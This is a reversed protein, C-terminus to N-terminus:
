DENGGDELHKLEDDNVKVTNAVSWGHNRLTEMNPIGKKQGNSIVYVTPGNGQLLAGEPFNALQGVGMTQLQNQNITKVDEFRKKWAKFISLSPIAHLQGGQVIYVTPDGPVKVVTGEPLSSLSPPTSTTTPQPNQCPTPPRIISDDDDDGDGIHRGIGMHEFQDESINKVNRFKKGKAHFIAASNFPRLTGNVVMYITQGGEVKVLSGNKLPSFAGSTSTGCPLTTSASFVVSNSLASTLNASDARLQITGIQNYSIGTFSSVGATNNITTSGSLAGLTSSGSVIPTLSIARGNDATLINGFQDKVSVSFSNLATNIQAAAPPQVTFVLKNAAGPVQTLTGFSTSATLGAIAGASLTINGAAALPAGAAAKIKLPVTSGITLSGAATSTSTINLSFHASDPFSVATSGTLGTGTYVVNAISATDLAYGAPLAWTLTGAPIDGAAQETLALAPLSVSLGGFSDSSISAIMPTSVTAAFTHSQPIIYGFVMAVLAVVAIKENTM